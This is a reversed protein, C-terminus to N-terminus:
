NVTTALSPSWNEAHNISLQNSSINRFSDGFTPAVTVIDKKSTSKGLVNVIATQHDVINLVTTEHSSTLRACVDFITLIVGDVRSGEKVTNWDHFNILKDFTVGELKLHIFHAALLSSIEVKTLVPVDVPMVAALHWGLSLIEV